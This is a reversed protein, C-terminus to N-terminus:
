RWTNGRPLLVIDEISIRPSHLYREPLLNFHFVIQDFQSLRAAALEFRLREHVTTHGPVSVIPQGGVLQLQRSRGRGGALLLDLAVTGPLGDRNAVDVEIAGCTSVEIPERLDQRAEVILPILDTSAYSADLLSGTLQLSNSPPRNETQRYIWYEGTFPVHLPSTVSRQRLAPMKVTLVAQKHTGAPRLVVGRHIRRNVPESATGVAADGPRVPALMALISFRSGGAGRPGFGGPGALLLVAIATLSFSVAPQAWGIARRPHYAGSSAALLLLLLFALALALMSELRMLAIWLVVATQGLFSCLLSWRLTPRTRPVAPRSHISLPDLGGPAEFARPTLLAIQRATFLSVLALVAVPIPAVHSLPLLMIPAWVVILSSRLCRRLIEAPRLRRRITCYVLSLAITWLWVVATWVLVRLSLSTVSGVGRRALSGDTSTLLLTLLGATVITVLLFIVSPRPRPYKMAM